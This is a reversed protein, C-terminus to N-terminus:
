IVRGGIIDYIFRKESARCQSPSLLTSDM